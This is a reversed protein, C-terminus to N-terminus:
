LDMPDMPGCHHPDGLKQEAAFLGDPIEELAVWGHSKSHRVAVRGNECLAYLRPSSGGYGDADTAAAIQIIRM